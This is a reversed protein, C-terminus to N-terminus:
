MFLISYRSWKFRRSPALPTAPNTMDTPNRKFTVKFFYDFEFAPEAVNAKRAADRMRGIGTGM